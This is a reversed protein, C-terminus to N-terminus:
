HRDRAIHELNTQTLCHHHMGISKHQRQGLRGGGLGADAADKVAARGQTNAVQQHEAEKAAM